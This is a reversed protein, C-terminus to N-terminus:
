TSAEVPLSARITTGEGPRSLVQFDGALAVVRERMSILGLGKGMATEVDFGCGHDTIELTVHHRNYNLDVELRDSGSHRAVNALAEQAVRYLAQETELPVKREGSVRLKATIGTRESWASLHQHLATALGKGVLAVPRLQRLLANLEQQAQQALDEAQRLHKAVSPPDQGLLARAAAIQMATAFVQQKVSDHLERALRNREELSALHERVELVGQLQEAMRNLQRALRGIEDDPEARAQVSFDGRGWAATVEALQDLRRTLWYATLFGFVTAAFVRGVALFAGVGGELKMISSWLRGGPATAVVRLYLAGRITGSPDRIPETAVVEGHDLRIAQGNGTLAQQLLTTSVEAAAPDYFPEPWGTRLSAPVNSAVLRGKEDVIAILDFRQPLHDPPDPDSLALIPLGPIGSGNEQLPVVSSLWRDLLATDPGSALLAGAPISLQRAIRAMLQPLRPGRTSIWWSGLLLGIQILLVSILMLLAYYITLRWRLGQRM